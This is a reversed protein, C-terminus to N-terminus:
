CSDCSLRAAINEDTPSRAARAHAHVIAGLLRFRELRKDASYAVLEASHRECAEFDGLVLEPLVSAMFTCMAVTPAHGHGALEARVEDCVQAAQDHLGLFLLPTIKNAKVSLGLDFGFRHSLKKQRSPDRFREARQLAELAERFHGMFTQLTGVLRYGVIRCTADDVRDAVEVIEHAKALAAEIQAAYYATACLGNLVSFRQLDTGVGADIFRKAEAWATLTEVAAQGKSQM